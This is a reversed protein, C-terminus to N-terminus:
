ECAPPRNPGNFCRAFTLFDDLDVDGDTDLDAGECGPRAPARNPGNFCRSFSLFDELDVDGDADFDPTSAVSVTVSNAQYAVTLRKGGISTGHVTTFEGTRAACTLITFTDGIAPSYGTALSLQLTGALSASGTVALRDCQGPGAIEVDLTAAPQQIYGGSVSLTGVSTGPAVTGGLSLVNGAVTGGGSLRSGGHLVVSDPAPVIPGSGVFVRGNGSLAVTGGPWIRLETGVAVLGEDNVDLTGTGGADTMLGGVSLPGTISWKSGTGTVTAAGTSGAMRAIVGAASTVQGGGDVLLTGNGFWGVSMSGDQTWTSGSGITATGVGGAQWAIIASTGAPSDSKYSELIAGGTVDVIGEGSYGVQIQRNSTVRGGDAVSLRGYAGGEGGIRLIGGATLYSGTDRVKARGAARLGIFVSGSAMDTTVIVGGGNSITACGATDRGVELSHDSRLTSSAGDVILEADCTTARLLSPAATPPVWGGITCIYRSVVSGGSLVKLQASGGMQVLVLGVLDQPDGAGRGNVTLSGQDSVEVTAQGGEQAVVMPGHATVSSESEIKLDGVSSNMRAVVLRGCVTESGNQLLMTGQGARGVILDQDVGLNWLSADLFLSGRSDPHFGLWGYRHAAASRNLAVTGVGYVGITFFHDAANWSTNTMTLSGDNDPWRGLELEHAVIGGGGISDRVTLTATAPNAPDDAVSVSPVLDWTHQLAYARGNLDITVHGDNVLLQGNTTDADHPMTVEYAGPLAFVARDFLGPPGAPTWNTPTAFSGGNSNTWAYDSVLGDVEFIVLGNEAAAALAYPGSLAVRRAGGPFPDFAVQVPNASDSVDVVFLGPAGAVLAYRGQLTVGQAEVTSCRGAFVPSAPTSVNVIELGGGDAAVYALGGRVAVDSAPGATDYRGVRSPAAPNSVDIIDLGPPIIPTEWGRGTSALYVFDGQKALGLAYSTTPPDQWHGVLSPTVYPDSVDFILLGQHDDAVYAYGGDVVVERAACGTNNNATRTPNAPDQVNVVELGACGDALYVQAGARTLGWAFEFGDLHGLLQPNSMDAGSLIELGGNVFGTSLYLLDADATVDSVYGSINERYEGIRAIDPPSSVDFVQLGHNEAAVYATGAAMVVQRSWGGGNASGVPNPHERDSVDVVHLGSWGAALFAYDGEVAVGLGFGDIECHGKLTPHEPDSVDVIFLGGSEGAAYAYQGSVAVGVATGSWSCTGSVSPSSPDSVDVVVLGNGADAVYAFNGNVTVARANGPTDITSLLTPSFPDSVDIIRLGRESCAVYALGDALCIGAAYGEFLVIGTQMINSPDRVDYVGLGNGFVAYAYDGSAAVAVVIDWLMPSSGLLVPDAPDTIDLVFFRAGGSIYAQGGEVAAWYVPGGWHSVRNLSIAAQTSDTASVCVVCVAVCWLLHKRFM